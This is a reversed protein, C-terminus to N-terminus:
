ALRDRVSLHVKAKYNGYLELEEPLLGVEEAIQTIPKLTAEQAIEIDSPVPTRLKLPTPTFM